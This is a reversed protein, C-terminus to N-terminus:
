VAPNSAASDLTVPLQGVALAEGFLVHVAALLAPRTYEFAALCTRMEPFLSVDYPDGAVLGVVPRNLRLIDAALTAQEPDLHANITVLVIADAERAARYVDELEAPSLASPAVISAVNQHRERLGGVLVDQPYAVDIALSVSQHGPGVVLLKQSADLRLPLLSEDDRVVTLSHAYARKSLERHATSGVADLNGGATAEDWSLHRAKLQLVRATAQGIDSGTLRGEDLAHVVADISAVQRDYRHSVLVLDLGAALALVAGQPVGVGESIAQMELCDSIAVGKFGLRARLLGRIVAPSITAPLEPDLESLQMHATMVCDVGAAIGRRFPVLEVRDLRDLGFPVVPLSLHSDVATDGH